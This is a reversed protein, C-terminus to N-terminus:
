TRCSSEVIRRFAVRMCALTEDIDAATHALTTFWYHNRRVFFGNRLMTEMFLDEQERFGADFALHPLSELGRISVRVEPFERSLARWGDLLRAGMARLHAFAGPQRLEDTTAAAAALSLTEGAFTSSIWLDRAADFIEAKGVLAALPFGNAMAKGFVSLDPRIGSYEQVGALALRFGTIVEDFVLIAGHARCLSAVTRLFPADLDHVVTEVIVCALANGHEEFLRSVAASDGYPVDLTLEAAARPVDGDGRLGAWWDHWGHYGCSVVFPRGTYKRALRVAASCGDAGTKFFRVREAGPVSAILKEAVTVELPSNGSFLVGRALQRRVADDVAPHAYGLVIPGLAMVYDLYENGDLDWLRAGSGREIYAPAFGPHFREPQKSITQAGGLIIQKARSYLARSRELSRITTAQM